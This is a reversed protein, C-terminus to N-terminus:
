WSRNSISYKEYIYFKFPEVLDYDLQYSEIETGNKKVQQKKKM